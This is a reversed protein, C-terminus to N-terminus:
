GSHARRCRRQALRAVAFGMGLRLEADDTTHRLTVIKVHLALLRLATIIGGKYLNLEVRKSRPIDVCRQQIVHAILQLRRCEYRYVTLSVNYIRVLEAKLRTPAVLGGISGIIAAIRRALTPTEFSCHGIVSNGYQIYDYLASPVYSIKGKSLAVCAIWHDHFADGVRVPFPLIFELLRQRFMLAAGTVTNALLMLDLQQYYNKRQQWYTPSIECGDAGVIRMDSYVLEVNKEFAGLLTALKEPFWYDDQDALAIWEVHPPVYALAREFNEYFGVNSEHLRLCLREDEACKETLMRQSQPNSADDCVICIWDRFSQSLISQLQREFAEPEPNYTAMCIAVRASRHAAASPVSIPKNVCKAIMTQGLVVDHAAGNALFVHLTVVCPREKPIQSLDALGVFDTQQGGGGRKFCFLECTSEGIGLELGVIESNPHLCVGYIPLSNGLGITLVEPIPQDLQVNIRDVLSDGPDGASSQLTNRLSRKM